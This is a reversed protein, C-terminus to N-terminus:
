APVVRRPFSYSVCQREHRKNRSVLVSAICQDWLSESTCCHLIPAAASREIRTVLENPKRLATAKKTTKHKAKRRELKKQRKRRDMAM